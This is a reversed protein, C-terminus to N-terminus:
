ENDDQSPKQAREFGRIFSPVVTDRVIEPSNRALYAGANEAADEIMPVLSDSASDWASSVMSTVLSANGGGGGGQRDNSSSKREGEAKGANGRDFVKRAALATAGTAAAVAAARAVTKRTSDGSGNSGNTEETTGSQETQEQDAM